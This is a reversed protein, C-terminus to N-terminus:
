SSGTRLQRSIFFFVAAVALVFLSLVFLGKTIGDAVAGLVETTKGVGRAVVEIPNADDALPARPAEKPAIWLKVVDIGFYVAFGLSVVGLPISIWLFLLSFGQRVTM